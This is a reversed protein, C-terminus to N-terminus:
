QNCRVEKDVTISLSDDRPRLVTTTISSRSSAAKKGSGAPDTGPARWEATAAASVSVDPTHVPWSDDKLECCIFLTSLDLTQNSSSRLQVHRYGTQYIIIM